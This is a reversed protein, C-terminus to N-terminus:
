ESPITFTRNVSGAINSAICTYPVDDSLEAKAIKISAVGSDSVSILVKDSSSLPIDERMWEVTPTPTGEVICEIVLKKGIKPHQTMSIEVISPYGAYYYIKIISTEM